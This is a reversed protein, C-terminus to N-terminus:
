HRDLIKGGSAEFVKRFWDMLEAVWDPDEQSRVWCATLLMMENSIVEGDEFDPLVLKLSGDGVAVLAAQTEDVVTPAECVGM